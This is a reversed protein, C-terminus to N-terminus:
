ATVGGFRGVRDLDVLLEKASQFRDEPRKALLKMVVGSFLDPIAMQFKRPKEPEVSRIKQIMELPTGSFPPRGAILAYVTAGLGYLDARHDVAGGGTREPSM